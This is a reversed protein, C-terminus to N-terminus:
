IPISLVGQRQVTKCFPCVIDNVDYRKAVSRGSIIQPQSPTKNAFIKSCKECEFTAPM